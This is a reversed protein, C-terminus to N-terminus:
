ATLGEQTTHQRPGEGYESWDIGARNVPLGLRKRATTPDKIGTLDSIQRDSLGRAHLRQIVERRDAPTLHVGRDGNTSRWVAAEDHEIQDIDDAVDEGLDDLALPPLWGANAAYRRARSAAIKDRHEIEPPLTM